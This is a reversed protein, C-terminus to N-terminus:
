CCQQTPGCSMRSKFKKQIPLPENSMYPYLKVDSPKLCPMKDFGSLTKESIINRPCGSDIVMTIKQSDGLTIETHPPRGDNEKLSYIEDDSSHEQIHSVKKTPFKKGFGRFKPKPSPKSNSQEKSHCVKAFHGVKGCSSCTKDRAPCTSSHPYEGGCFWCQRASQTKKASNQLPTRTRSKQTHQSHPKVYSVEKRVLNDSEANALEHARAEELLGALPLKDRSIKNGKYQVHRSTTGSVLQLRVEKDKDHFDCFNAKQLLRTHFADITEGPLQEIKRFEQEHKDTNKRPEKYVDDAEAAILTLTEFTDHVHEGAYYLLLAKMRGKDDVNMGTM